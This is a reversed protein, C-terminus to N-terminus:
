DDNAETRDKNAVFRECFAGDLPIGNKDAHRFEDRPFFIMERGYKQYGRDGKRILRAIKSEDNLHNIPASILKGDDRDELDEWIFLWTEIGTIEQVALYDNWHRLSIGHQEQNGQNYQIHIETHKKVEALKTMGDKSAQIDPIVRDKLGEGGLIPAGDDSYAWLPTTGWGCRNLYKEVKEEGDNGKKYEETDEFPVADSSM